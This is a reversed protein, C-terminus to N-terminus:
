PMPQGTGFIVNDAGKCFLRVVGTTPDRLIVSMRKRDSNFELINLLEWREELGLVRV